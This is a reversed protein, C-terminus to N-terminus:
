LRTKQKTALVAQLDNRLRDIDAQQEKIAEIALVVLGSYNLGKMNDPGVKVVEPVVAEVEQAILGLQRSESVLKNKWYFSVGRLELLKSTAGQLGEVKEKLWVDSAEVSGDWSWLKRAAFGGFYDRNGANINADLLRLWEDRGIRDGVGSMTWKEGLQLINTRLVQESGDEGIRVVKSSAGLVLDNAVGTSSHDAYVGVYQWASGLRLRGRGGQRLTENGQVHLNNEIWADTVYVNSGAGNVALKVAPQTTGIGVNGNTDITLREFGATNINPQHFIRFREALNDVHWTTTTVGSDQALTLRNVGVIEGNVDLAKRPQTTGIGVNGGSDQIVVKGAASASRIYWDGTPDWHIHSSFTGKAPDPTFVATGATQSNGMVSLRALPGTTGIGVNGGMFATKGQPDTHKFVFLKDSGGDYEIDAGNSFVTLLGQEPEKIGKLTLRGSPNPVGMGVQGDDRVVVQKDFITNKAPDTKEFGIQIETNVGVERRVIASIKKPDDNQDRFHLAGGLLRADADVRLPGEVWLLDDTWVSSNPNHRKKVRVHGDAAQISEAVVGIYRRSQASKKLDEPERKVIKAAQRGNTPKWRVLGLAIPWRKRDESAPFIQFPISEDVIKISSSSPPVNLGDQATISTGNVVISDQRGKLPAQYATVELRSTERIRRQQAESDCSEFGRAPDQEAQEEYRIWVALLRGEPSGDDLGPTFTFDQFLNASLLVPELLIVPRGYGDWAYGPSVFVDIDGNARQKERLELGLAIGWTHGGLAHRADQTRGYDIALNLDDAGLYQDEFYRPRQDQETAM